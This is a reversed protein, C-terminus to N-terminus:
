EMSEILMTLWNATGTSTLLLCVKQNIDWLDIEYKSLTEQAKRIIDSKSQSYQM